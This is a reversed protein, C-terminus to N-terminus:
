VTKGILLPNARGEIEIRKPLVSETLDLVELSDSVLRIKQISPENSCFSNMDKIRLERLRRASKM